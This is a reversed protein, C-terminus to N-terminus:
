TTCLVITAKAVIYFTTRIEHGSLTHGNLHISSLLVKM